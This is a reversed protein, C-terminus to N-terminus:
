KYLEMFFLYFNCVIAFKFFGSKKGLSQFEKVTALMIIDLFLINWAKEANEPIVYEIFIM